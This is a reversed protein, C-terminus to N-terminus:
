KQNEEIFSKIVANKESYKQSLEDIVPQLESKGTFSTITVGNSELEDLKSQEATIAEQIGWNVAASMAEKVITQDEPSLKNFVSQSMIAIEPFTMHNTLTLNKAIEYFKQTLIADIDGDVGDIVGTQLSMYVEPLPISTPGAGAGKWFEEFLPSAPVRIKKGKVDAASAMSGSKLLLHRNGTFLYDLGVIDLQSLDTLMQKAAESDKAESAAKLDPFLFPLFWGNLSESQSAMYGNSIIAFDLSGTQVQQVMEKEKGLQAAPFIEVDMRGDSRAKLEEKFKEATLHKIHTTQVEHGLKFTYTPKAAATGPNDTKAASNQPEASSQPAHNSSCASLVFILALAFISVMVKMRRM